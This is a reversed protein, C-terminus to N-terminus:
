ETQFRDDAASGLATMVEEVYTSTNNKADEFDYDM